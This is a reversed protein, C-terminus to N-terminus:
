LIKRFRTLIKNLIGAVVFNHYQAAGVHPKTHTHQISHINDQKHQSHLISKCGLGRISPPMSSLGLINDNGSLGCLHRRQPSMRAPKLPGGTMKCGSSIYVGCYMGRYPIKVFLFPHLEALKLSITSSWKIHLCGM